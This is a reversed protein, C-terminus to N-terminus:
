KKHLIYSFPIEGEKLFSICISEFDNKRLCLLIEYGNAQIRNSTHSFPYFLGTKKNFIKGSFCMPQYATEGSKLTYMCGDRKDQIIVTKRKDIVQKLVIQDYTVEKLSVYVCNGHILFVYKEEGNPLKINGHYQIRLPVPNLETLVWETPFQNLPLFLSKAEMLPLCFTFIGLFAHKFLKGLLPQIIM